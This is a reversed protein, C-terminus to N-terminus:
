LISTSLSRCQDGCHSTPDLIFFLLLDRLCVVAPSLQQSLNKQQSDAHIIKYIYKLTKRHQTNM